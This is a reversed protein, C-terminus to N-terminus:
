DRSFVFTDKISFTIPSFKPTSVINPHLVIIGNQLVTAELNHFRFDILGPKRSTKSVACRLNIKTILVPKFKIKVESYSCYLACIRYSADFSCIRHQLSKKLPQYDSRHGFM